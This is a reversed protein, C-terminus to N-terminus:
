SVDHLFQLLIANFIEPQELNSLHSAAPVVAFRSGPVRAQMGRMIEVPLGGDQDSAVFLSPRAIDGLRAELGASKVAEACAVSPM